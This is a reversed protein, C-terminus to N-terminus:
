AACMLLAASHPNDSTGCSSAAPAQRSPHPLHPSLCHARPRGLHLPWRHERPWAAMWSRQVRQASRSWALTSSGQLVSGWRRSNAAAGQCEGPGKGDTTTEPGGTATDATRAGGVGTPQRARQKCTELCRQQEHCPLSWQGVHACMKLAASVGAWHGQQHQPTHQWEKAARGAQRLAAAMRSPRWPQTCGDAAMGEGHVQWSGNTAVRAPIRGRGRGGLGTDQASRWPSHEPPGGKTLSTRSVASYRLHAPFTRQTPHM